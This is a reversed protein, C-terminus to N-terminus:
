GNLDTLDRCFRTFEEATLGGPVRRLIDDTSVSWIWAPVALKSDFTLLKGDPTWAPRGSPEDSLRVFREQTLDLVWVGLDDDAFGALALMSNDPSWSTLLGRRGPTVWHKEFGGDERSRVILRESVGFALRQRDSSVSPYRGPSRGFFVSPQRSHKETDIFMVAQSQPDYFYLSRGDKSWSPYAGRGTEAVRVSQKDDRKMLWLEERGLMEPFRETVFAILSGDPSITADKGKESLVHRTKQKLDVLEFGTGPSRNVVALGLGTNTFSARWARELFLQRPLLDIRPAAVPPAQRKTKRRRVFAVGGGAFVMSASLALLSRRNCSASIPMALKHGQRIATLRRLVARADAPRREPLEELCQGTLRALARQKLGGLRPPDKRVRRGGSAQWEPRRDFFLEHLVIGLSYLDSARTAPEGAAVEPAMYLPTGVYRTASGLPTLTALGFDSLVLRGDGLRLVNEPKVDRHIIGADHIAGLGSTIAEADRLRHDLTREAASGSRLDDRLSGEALEMVLFRDEGSTQLDFVRCVHAHNLARAVRLERTFLQMLAPQSARESRLLKVAVPVGALEDRARLVYGTAGQGILGEIRYRGAVMQGPEVQAPLALLRGPGSVGALLPAAAEILRACDQCADLHFEVSSLRDMPLDGAFFRVLTSEDVCGTPVIEPTM